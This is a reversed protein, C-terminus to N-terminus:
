EMAKALLEKAYGSKAVILAAVPGIEREFQNYLKMLNVKGWTFHAFGAIDIICDIQVDRMLKWLPNYLLAPASYGKPVRNRHGDHVYDILHTAATEFLMMESTIGAVATKPDKHDFGAVEVPEVYWAYRSELQQTLINSIVRYSLSRPTTNPAGRQGLEIGLEAEMMKLAQHSNHTAFTHGWALEGVRGNVNVGHHTQFFGLIPPEGVTAYVGLGGGHNDSHAIDLHYNPHRRVIESAYWWGQQLSFRDALFGEDEYSM